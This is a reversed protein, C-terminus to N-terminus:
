RRRKTTLSTDRRQRKKPPSDSRRPPRPSQTSQAQQPHPQPYHPPAMPHQVASQPWFAPQFQPMPPMAPYGPYPYAPPQQYQMPFPSGLMQPMMSMQPSNQHHDESPDDSEEYESHVSEPPSPQRPTEEPIPPAVTSPIVPQDSASDTSHLGPILKGFVPQERHFPASSMVALEAEAMKAKWTIQAVQLDIASPHSTEDPEPHLRAYEARAQGMAEQATNLLCRQQEWGAHDIIGHAALWEAMEQANIEIPNQAEVEVPVEPRSTAAPFPSDDHEHGIEIFPPNTFHHPIGSYIGHVEDLYWDLAPFCGLDSASTPPIDPHGKRADMIVALEADNVAVLHPYTNSVVGAWSPPLLGHANDVRSAPSDRKEGLRLYEQQVERRYFSHRQTDDDTPQRLTSPELPADFINRAKRLVSKVNLEGMKSTIDEVLTQTQDNLSEARVVDCLQQLGETVTDLAFYTKTAARWSKLDMFTSLNGMITRHTEIITAVEKPLEGGNLETLAQLEEDSPWQQQKFKTMVKRYEPKNSIYGKLASASAPNKGKAKRKKAVPAAPLVDVEDEEKLPREEPVAPDQALTSLLTRPEGSSSVGPTREDRTREDDELPQLGDENEEHPHRELEEGDQLHLLADQINDMTVSQMALRLLNRRGHIESQSQQTMTKSLCANLSIISTQQKEFSLQQSRLKALELLPSSCILAPSQEAAGRKM